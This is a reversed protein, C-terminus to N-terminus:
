LAGRAQAIKSGNLAVWTAFELTNANGLLDTEIFSATTSFVLDDGTLLALELLGDGSSGGSGFGEATLNPSGVIMRKGNNEDEFLYAKAHLRDHLYVEAGFKDLTELLMLKNKFASGSGTKGPPPTTLVKIQAGNALQRLLHDSLRGNGWFEYDQMNFSVIMAKTLSAFAGISQLVERAVDDGLCPIVVPAPNAQTM